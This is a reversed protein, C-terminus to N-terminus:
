ELAEDLDDLVGLERLQRLYSDVEDDPLEDPALGESERYQMTLATQLQPRAGLISQLLKRRQGPTGPLATAVPRLRAAKKEYEARAHELKRRKYATVARMLVGRVREGENEPDKGQEKLETVIEEDPAQAVSDAVANALQRLEGIYDRPKSPM